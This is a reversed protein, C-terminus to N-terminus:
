IGKQFVAGFNIKEKREVDVTAAIIAARSIASAITFAFTSLLLALLLMVFYKPNLHVFNSFEFWNNGFNNLDVNFYRTGNWIGGGTLFLGFFWLFRHNKTYKYAKTVTAFLNM